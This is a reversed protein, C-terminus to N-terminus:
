CIGGIITCRGWILDFGTSNRGGDLIGGGGLRSIENITRVSRTVMNPRLESVIVWERKVTRKKTETTVDRVSHVEGIVVTNKATQRCREDNFLSSCDRSACGPACYTDM